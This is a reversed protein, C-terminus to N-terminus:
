PYCVDTPTEIYGEHCEDRRSWHMMAVKDGGDDGHETVLDLADNLLERMHQEDTEEASM